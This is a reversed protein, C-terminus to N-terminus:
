LDSGTAQMECDLNLGRGEYVSTVDVRASAFVHGVGILVPQTIDIVVTGDAMDKLTCVLRRENDRTLASAVAVPTRESAGEDLLRCALDRALRGGMYFITTAKSHVMARWDLDDPLTGRRNHATVFRVSQAYDRHTLSVGFTSAMALASTIGPVIVVPIGQTQLAAIEEGGRGFIMPDGSKLRVVHHGARALAIMMENIDEQRCSRQGGRKGVLMRRAEKHALDLVEDSILDDFLIVDASQLARLAKITLLDPDGPGAGVLTVRGNHSAKANGYRNLPL